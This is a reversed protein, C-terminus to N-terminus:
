RSKPAFLRGIMRALFFLLMVVLILTLAAAWAREYNVAGGMRVQSYIFVPLSMMQGDFLNWNISVASSGATLILPATEGIVRAIALMIGTTLGAASTPLVVKTITRWKPVGLAYSAERLDQPVLRLMEESSRVVVPIMLVALSIAGAAGNTRGPGFLLIWLAVVFLGAVISPIGTMVDVFFTIARALRGRGYEVLYVAALIGIPVSIVTAIGTTWLTGTIAHVAGGGAGVINRMSYTFFELDFRPLGKSLTEFVVSVLPLLALGIPVNLWFIWQWSLHETIAGGVLPGSAIAIGNVAGWIGFAMGRRAAPVAASILTLSLPLLVAAGAGQVARAAILAETGGAMAAWASALTFILVGYGFIRRRGFRDGLGAALLLLCAFPLTYANVIWELDSLRGGLAERMVPLATTVVLNDLAAM